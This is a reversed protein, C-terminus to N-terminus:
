EGRRRRAEALEKPADKLENPFQGLAVGNDSTSPLICAGAVGGASRLVDRRTIAM